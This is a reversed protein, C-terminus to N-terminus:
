RWDQLGSHWGPHGAPRDLGIVAEATGQIDFGQRAAEFRAHVEGLLALADATLVSAARPDSAVEIHVKPQAAAQSM